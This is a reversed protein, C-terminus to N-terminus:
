PQRRPVLRVCILIGAEVSRGYASASRRLEAEMSVMMTGEVACSMLWLPLLAMGPVYLVVAPSQWLSVPVGCEVVAQRACVAAGVAACAISAVTWFVLGFMTPGPNGALMAIAVPLLWLLVLPERQSLAVYAVAAMPGVVLTTLAFVFRTSSSGWVVACGRLFGNVGWLIEKANLTRIFEAHTPAPEM